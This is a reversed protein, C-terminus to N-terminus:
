AAAQEATAFRGSLMFWKAATAENLPEGTADSALREHKAHLFQGYTADVKVGDIVNFYHVISPRGIDDVNCRMIQGGHRAHLLLSAVHCAGTSPRAESWMGPLESVDITFLTRLIALDRGLEPGTM